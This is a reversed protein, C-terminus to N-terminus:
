KFDAGAERESATVTGQGLYAGQKGANEFRVMLGTHRCTDKVIEKSEEEEVEVDICTGEEIPFIELKDASIRHWEAREELETLFEMMKEERVFGAFFDDKFYLM